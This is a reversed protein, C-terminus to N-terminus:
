GIQVASFHGIWQPTGATYTCLVNMYYTTAVSLTLIKRPVIIQHQVGAALPHNNIVLDFGATTGAESATTSSVALSTKADVTMTAGNPITQVSASLDWRGIGLALSTLALYVGTAAASTPTSISSSIRYGIQGAVPVLTGNGGSPFARGTLVDGVDLGNASPIQMYQVEGASTANSVFQIPTSM